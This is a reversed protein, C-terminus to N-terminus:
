CYDFEDNRSVGSLGNRIREIQLYIVDKPETM